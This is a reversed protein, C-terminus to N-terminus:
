NLLQMHGAVDHVRLYKAGNAIAIKGAELNTELDMRYEGLFRKRSYGIMVSYDKVLRAFSLLERNLEPTKGFGIGPDLIIQDINFGDQLLLTAKELLDNKVTMIDSILESSHAQRINMGRLHSVIIKPKIKLVTEVMRPNNLGTVDNVIVPGIDFARRITLPHYSDLSIRGPYEALLSRLIPELRKWEVQDTIPEAKPNTAEAGVDIFTAGDDFLSKAHTLASKADYYLGGDSFSNPTINLIGVLKTM